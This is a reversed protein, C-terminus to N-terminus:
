HASQAVTSVRAKSQNHSRFWDYTTRLGEDLTIRPSWGLARIKSSDLLKQMTGNPRAADWEVAGKYGIINAVRQALDAITIDTGYGVNYLGSENSELVRLAATALDDVHLFERRPRGDGWLHVVGRSGEQSAAHFKALMAPLVHSGELDFNDGPGYLNTPMISVWRRGHQANAAEVQKLGAIKAIAYPENTPELPGTLLYEERIPQPTVKPYICSSGFFVVRETGEDLASHM